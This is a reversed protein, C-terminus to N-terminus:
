STLKVTTKSKNAVDKGMYYKGITFYFVTGKNPESKVWIKGHHKDIIRQVTALGIGMGEFRSEDHLRQFPLFINKAYQEDFGIGNDKVYFTTNENNTIKGIEIKPDDTFDTYKIANSILNSLLIKILKIDGLTNLDDSFHIIEEDYNNQEIITEILHHISVNEYKLEKRTVRSLNLINDILDSMHKAANDVRKLYDIGQPDLNNSHEFLLQSSFGSISRLPTRLDHSITYAFTELEKNVANLETTYQILSEEAAKRDSIDLAYCIIGRPKNQIDHLLSLSLLAYFTNSNKNLMSTEIEISGMDILRSLLNKDFLSNIHAPTLINFSKGIVEDATYSFLRESGKNWSTITNNMDTSIVADHIQDIIIAQEHVQKTRQEVLLELQKQHQDLQKTTRTHKWFELTLSIIDATANIFGQEEINWEHHLSDREVIIKGIVIEGRTILSEISQNNTEKLHILELLDDKNTLSPNNSNLQKFSSKNIESHEGLRIERNHIHKNQIADYCDVCQIQTHDDNYLWIASASANLIKCITENTLSSAPRISNGKIHQNKALFLLTQQRAKIAEEKEKISLEIEKQKTIDFMFGRLIIPGTEDSIVNVSDRIWVDKGNKSIM